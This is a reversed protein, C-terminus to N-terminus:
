HGPRDASRRSFASFLLTAGALICVIPVFAGPIAATGLGLALAKWLGGFFFMAGVLLWFGEIPLGSYKRALQGGLTIVGVGLLSVGWGVSALVAIGIWIFFLGWSAADLKRALERKGEMVQGRTDNIM